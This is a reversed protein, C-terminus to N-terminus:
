RGCPRTTGKRPAARCPRSRRNRVATLLASRASDRPKYPRIMMAACRANTDPHSPGLCRPITYLRLDHLTTFGLWRIKDGCVSLFFFCVSLCLPTEDDGYVSRANTNPTLPGADRCQTAHSDHRIHFWSETHRAGASRQTCPAAASSKRCM